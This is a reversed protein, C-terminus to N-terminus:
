ELGAAQRQEAQAVEAGAAIAESRDAKGLSAVLDKASNIKDFGQARM